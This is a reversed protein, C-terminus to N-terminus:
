SKKKFFINMKESKKDEETKTVGFWYGVAVLIFVTKDVKSTLTAKASM